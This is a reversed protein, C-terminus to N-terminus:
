EQWTKVFKVLVNGHFQKERLRYKYMVPLGWSNDGGVGMMASLINVTVFPEPMLEFDHTTRELQERGNRSVKAIFTEGPASEFEVPGLELESVDCRAGNEQPRVYHTTWQDIHAAYNGPLASAKRDPYNEHPGRGRWYITDSLTNFEWRLGICPMEPVDDPVNLTYSIALLGPEVAKYVLQLAAGTNSLRYDYVISDPSFRSSRTMLQEDRWPAMERDVHWGRDNETLARWFDFAMPSHLLERGDTVVNAVMGTSRDIAVRTDDTVFIYTSDTATFANQMLVTHREAPHIVFRDHAIPRLDGVMAVDLMLERGPEDMIPLRVDISDFPEVAVHLTDAATTAGDVIRQWVVTFKDTNTSHYRNIVRLTDAGVLKFKVPEYVKAVEYYHPHPQREADLLGNLSFSGNNPFDGFDGGYLLGKSPDNIDRRMGQDIWDWIFGGALMDNDYILDWYDTLNGVSNGMAHAYENMVFPRGSPYHGHQQENTSEGHEGKREARGQLHERLWEVSPYTQSDFDAAINMDAYHILRREPDLRHVAERMDMFTSGYGAENGLSWMVVSPHQRVRMVTGEIRRVCEESWEPLDAPLVHANYSLGHSEVNAEEMVMLGASDCLAYFRAKNPYHANRVFNINAEKMLKVDREMEEDTITWGQVPSFEHRNVGRIKFKRGNLYLTNGIREIKRFGVPLDFQQVARGGREFSVRANYMAPNEDSWLEVRGLDIAPATEEQGMGHAITDLSFRRRAAIHGAPDTIEVVISADDPLSETDNLTTYHLRIAGNGSELDLRPEAYVDYLAVRPETEIVVDRYIGSLRWYDQDELYSGRSYKEVRAVIENTDGPVVYRTIDFEAPLRSDAHQGVVEGNVNVSLRSSAGEFRLVLRNQATDCPPLYVNRRYVGTPNRETYSTYNQPPTGMVNPPDVHFPYVFNTYIPTGFGMREMTSPLTISDGMWQEAPADPRPAWRFGWRSDTLTMVDNLQSRVAGRPPMPDLAQAAMCCMAALSLACFTPKM